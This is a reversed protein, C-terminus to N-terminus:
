MVKKLFMLIIMLLKSHEIPQEMPYTYLKKCLYAFYNFLAPWTNTWAVHKLDNSDNWSIRSWSCATKPSTHKSAYEGDLKETAQVNGLSYMASGNLGEEEKDSNFECHLLVNEAPKAAKTFISANYGVMPQQAPQQSPDLSVTNRRSATNHDDGAATRVTQAFALTGCLAFCAVM